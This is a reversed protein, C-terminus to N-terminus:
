IENISELAKRLLDIIQREDTTEVIKIEEGQHKIVLERYQELGWGNTIKRSGPIPLKAADYRCAGPAFLIVSWKKRHLERIFDDDNTVAVMEPNGLMPPILEIARKGMVADCGRALISKNSFDSVPSDDELEKIQNILKDRSDM